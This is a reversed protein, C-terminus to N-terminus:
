YSKEICEVFIQTGIQAPWFDTFLFNMRQLNVWALTMQFANEKNNIRHYPEKVEVSRLEKWQPGFM